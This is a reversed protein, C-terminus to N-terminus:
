LMQAMSDVETRAGVAVAQVVIAYSIEFASVSHVTPWNQLHSLIMLFPQGRCNLPTKM